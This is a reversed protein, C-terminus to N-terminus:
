EILTTSFAYFLLLSARFCTRLPSPPHEQVFHPEDPVREGYESALEFFREEAVAKRFEAMRDASVDFRKTTPQPCTEILLGARGASDVKLHWPAGKAFRGVTSAEISLPVDKSQATASKGPEGACFGSAGLVLWALGITFATYPNWPSM